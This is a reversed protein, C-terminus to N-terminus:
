ADCVPLNMVRSKLLPRQVTLAMVNLEIILLVFFIEEGPCNCVAVLYAKTYTGPRPCACAPCDAVCPSKYNPNTCSPCCSCGDLASQREFNDVGPVEALGEAILFSRVIVQTDADTAATEVYRRMLRLKDVIEDITFSPLSFLSVMLTLTFIIKAYQRM